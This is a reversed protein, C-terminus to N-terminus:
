YKLVFKQDKPAMASTSTRNFNNKKYIYKKLLGGSSEQLNYPEYWDPDDFFIGDTGLPVLRLRKGDLRYMNGDFQNVYLRGVDDDFHAFKYFKIRLGKRYAHDELHKIVGKFLTDTRDFSLRSALFQSFEGSASILYLRSKKRDFFFAENDSSCFFDGRKRLFRKTLKYVEKKEPQRNSLIQKLTRELKSAMKRGGKGKKWKEFANLMQKKVRQFEPIETAYDRRFNSKPKAYRCRQIRKFLNKRSITTGYGLIKKCTKTHRYKCRNPCGKKRRAWFQAKHFGKRGIIKAIKDSFYHQCNFDFLSRTVRYTDVLYFNIEDIIDANYTLIDRPKIIGKRVAKERKIKIELRSSFLPRPHFISM